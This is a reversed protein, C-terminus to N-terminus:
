RRFKWRLMEKFESLLDVQEKFKQNNISQEWSNDWDDRRPNLINIEDFESLEKSVKQQWDEAKGMEISGALSVYIKNRFKRFKTPPKIEEMKSNVEM